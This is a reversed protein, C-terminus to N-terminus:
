RGIHVPRDEFEDEATAARHGKQKGSGWAYAAAAFFNAAVVLWSLFVANGRSLAASYDWDEELSRHAVEVNWEDVSSILVEISLVIVM